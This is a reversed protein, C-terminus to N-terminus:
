RPRICILMVKMFLTYLRLPEWAKKGLTDKVGYMRLLGRHWGNVWQRILPAVNLFSLLM